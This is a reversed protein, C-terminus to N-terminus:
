GEWAEIRRRITEESVDHKTREEALKPDPHPLTVIAVIYGLEEATKQYREYEWKKINTNDCIVIPIGEELSKKFANFNKQHYEKLKEGEFKYDGDGYFLEDTSHIVGVDGALQKAVTSKGSGPVGRMIYAFKKM